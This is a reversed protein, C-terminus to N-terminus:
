KADRIITSLSRQLRGQSLVARKVSKMVKRTDSVASLLKVLTISIEWFYPKMKRTLLSVINKFIDQIEFRPEDSDSSISFSYM